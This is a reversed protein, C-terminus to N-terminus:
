VSAIKIASQAIKLANKINEDDSWHIKLYDFLKDINGSQISKEIIKQLKNHPAVTRPAANKIRNVYFGLSFRDKLLNDVTRKFDVYDSRKDLRSDALDFFEQYKLSWDANSYAIIIQAPTTVRLHKLTGFGEDSSISKGVGHIDLLIIDYYGDELTTLKDVDDWKDITYGDRKFLENYAFDSDDIVLLRARKKIEDFPLNPWKNKSFLGRM